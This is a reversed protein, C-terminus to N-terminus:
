TKIVLTNGYIKKLKMFQVYYNLVISNDERLFVLYIDIESIRNNIIQQALKKNRKLAIKIRRLVEDITTNINNSM